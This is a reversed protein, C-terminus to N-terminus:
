ALLLFNPSVGLTIFILDAFGGHTDAMKSGINLLSTNQVETSIPSCAGKLKQEEGVTQM